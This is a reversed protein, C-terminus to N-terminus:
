LEVIIGHFINIKNESNEKLVNRLLISMINPVLKLNSNFVIIL